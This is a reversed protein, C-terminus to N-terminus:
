WKPRQEKFIATAATKIMHDTQHCRYCIKKRTKSRFIDGDQEQKELKGAKYVVAM